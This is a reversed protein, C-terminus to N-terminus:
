KIEQKCTKMLKSIQQVDSLTQNYREKLQSQEDRLTVIFKSMQDNNDLLQIIKLAQSKNEKELQQIKSKLENLETENGLQSTLKKNLEEKEEKMQKIQGLLQNNILRLNDCKTEAERLARKMEETEAISEKSQTKSGGQESDASDGKLSATDLSVADQDQKTSKKKKKRRRKRIGL